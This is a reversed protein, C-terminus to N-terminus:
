DKRLETQLNEYFTTVPLWEPRPSVGLPGRQEDDEEHGAPM